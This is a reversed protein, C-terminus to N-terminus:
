AAFTGDQAIKLAGDQGYEAVLYDTIDRPDDKEFNTAPHDPM